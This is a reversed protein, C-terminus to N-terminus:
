RAPTSVGLLRVTVKKRKKEKVGGGGRRKGM